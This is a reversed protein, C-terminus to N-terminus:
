AVLHRDNLTSDPGLESKGGSFSNQLARFTGMPQVHRLGSGHNVLGEVRVRRKKVKEM